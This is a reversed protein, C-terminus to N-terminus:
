TKVALRAVRLTDGIKVNPVKDMSIVEFSWRLQWLEVVELETFHTKTTGIIEVGYMIDPKITTKYNENVASNM